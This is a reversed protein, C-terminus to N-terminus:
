QTSQVGGPQLPESRKFAVSSAFRSRSSCSRRSACSAQIARQRSDSRWRLSCTSAFRRLVLARPTVKRLPSLLDAAVAFNTGDWGEGRVSSRRGYCRTMSLTLEHRPNRALPLPRRSATRALVQSLRARLGPNGAAIWCRQSRPRTRPPDSLLLATRDRLRLVRARGGLWIGHHLRNKRAARTTHEGQRETGASLLSHLRRAIPFQRNATTGAGRNSLGLTPAVTPSTADSALPPRCLRAAWGEKGLGRSTRAEPLYEGRPADKKRLSGPSAVRRGHGARRGRTGCHSREKLQLLLGTGQPTLYYCLPM